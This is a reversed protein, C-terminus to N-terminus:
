KKWIVQWSEIYWNTCEAPWCEGCYYCVTDCQSNVVFEVGDSQTVGTSLWYHINGKVNQASISKLSESIKPDALINEICNPLEPSIMGDEHKCNSFILFLILISLTKM